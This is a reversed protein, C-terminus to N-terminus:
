NRTETEAFRADKSAGAKKKYRQSGAPLEAPM